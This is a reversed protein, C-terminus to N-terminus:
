RFRGNWEPSYRAILDTELAMLEGEDDEVHVFYDVKPWAETVLSNVKCNTSQGDLFCSRPAIHGYGQEIRRRFPDRSRGIYKVVGDGAFAYVGRRSAVEPAELRFRRFRRDGWENLFRAYISDGSAKCHVLFQAIPDDLRDRYAREVEVRLSAYRPKALVARVTISPRLGAFADTYPEGDFALPAHAFGVKGFSSDLTFGERSTQIITGTRSAIMRARQAANDREHNSPRGPFTLAWDSYVTVVWEVLAGFTLTEPPNPWRAIEVEDAYLEWPLTREGEFDSASALRRQAGAARLYNRSSEDHDGNAWQSVRANHVAGKAIRTALKLIESQRFSVEPATPPSPERRTADYTMLATALWVAGLVDDTRPALLEM